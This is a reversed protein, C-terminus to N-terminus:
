KKAKDAEAAPVEEVAAEELVVEEKPAAADTAAPAAAHAAFLTGLLVALTYTFSKMTNKEMFLLAGRHPPKFIPPFFLKQLLFKKVLIFYLSM